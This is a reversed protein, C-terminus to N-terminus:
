FLNRLLHTLWDCFAASDHRDLIGRRHSWSRNDGHKISPSHNPNSSHSKQLLFHSLLPYKWVTALLAQTLPLPRFLLQVRFFSLLHFCTGELFSWKQGPLHLIRNRNPSILIYIKCQFSRHLQWFHAPLSRPIVESPSSTRGADFHHSEYSPPSEKQPIDATIKDFFTQTNSINHRSLFFKTRLKKSISLFFSHLM